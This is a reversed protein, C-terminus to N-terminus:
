MWFLTDNVDDQLMTPVRQSQVDSCGMARIRCPFVLTPPPAGCRNQSVDITLQQLQPWHSLERHLMTWLSVDLDNQPLHLEMNQVAANVKSQRFRDLIWNLCNVRVCCQTADLRLNRLPAWDRVETKLTLWIYSLDCQIFSLRLTRLGQMCDVISFILPVNTNMDAFVLHMHWLASVTSPTRHRETHTLIELVDRAANRLFHYTFSRWLGGRWASDFVELARSFSGLTLNVSRLREAQGLSHCFLKWDENNCNQIHAEVQLSLEVLPSEPRSMLDALLIPLPSHKHLRQLHVHLCQLKSHLLTETVAYCQTQGMWQWKDFESLSMGRTFSRERIMCVRAHLLRPLVKFLPTHHHLPLPVLVLSAFLAELASHWLKCVTRMDVWCKWGASDAIAHLLVLPVNQISM